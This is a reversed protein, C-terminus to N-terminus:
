SGIIMFVIGIFIVGFGIIKRKDFRSSKIGILGFHDIVLAAISQGLLGLALTLSVGIAQFTINNFFVLFVGLAGGTFYYLPIEHSLMFKDKRFLLVFGATLLGIVHIIILALFNDIINALSGNFTVMLATLGGTLIAGLKFM